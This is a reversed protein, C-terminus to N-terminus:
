RDLGQMEIAKLRDIVATDRAAGTLDESEFQAGMVAKGIAQLYASDDNGNRPM